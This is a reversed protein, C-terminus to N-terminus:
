PSEIGSATGKSPMAVTYEDDGFGSLMTAFVRADTTSILTCHLGIKEAGRVNWEEVQSVVFDHSGLFLPYSAGPPKYGTFFKPKLYGLVYDSDDLLLPTVVVGADDSSAPSFHCFVNLITKDLCTFAATTIGSSPPHISVSDSSTVTRTPTPASEAYMVDWTLKRHALDVLQAQVTNASGDPEDLPRAGYWLGTGQNAIQSGNLAM